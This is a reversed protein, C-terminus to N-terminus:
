LNKIMIPNKVSAIWKNLVDEDILQYDPLAMCQLIFDCASPKPGRPSIVGPFLRLWNEVNGLDKWEEEIILAKLSV